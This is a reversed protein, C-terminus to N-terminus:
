PPSQTNDVTRVGAKWTGFVAQPPIPTGGYQWDGALSNPDSTIDTIFLSPFIPRGSLDTGAQDGTDAPTGVDRTIPRCGAPGCGAGLPTVPYDNTTTGGASKVIVRRIGLLLAHEDNYWMKITDGPGLNNSGFARLVENESFVISTRPNDSPFPYRLDC